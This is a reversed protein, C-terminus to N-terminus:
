WGGRRYKPEYGEDYGDGDCSIFEFGNKSCWHELNSELNCGYDEVVPQYYDDCTCYNEFDSDLYRELRKAFLEHIVIQSTFPNAALLDALEKDPALADTPKLIIKAKYHCDVTGNGADWVAFGEWNFSLEEKLFQSLGECIRNNWENRNEASYLMSLIESLREAMNANLSCETQIILSLNEKDNFPVLGSVFVHLLAAVTRRDVEESKLLKKYVQFPKDSIYEPGNRDIVDKLVKVIDEIPKIEEM